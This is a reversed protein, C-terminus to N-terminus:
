SYVNHINTLNPKRHCWTIWRKLSTCTVTSPESFFRHSFSQRRSFPFVYYYYYYLNTARVYGVDTYQICLLSLGLERLMTVSCYFDKLIRWSGKNDLSNSNIVMCTRRNRSLGDWKKLKKYLLLWTLFATKWENTCLMCMLITCVKLVCDIMSETGIVWLSAIILCQGIDHLSGDWTNRYQSIKCLTCSLYRGSFSISSIFCRRHCQHLIRRFFGM